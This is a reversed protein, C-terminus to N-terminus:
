RKMKFKKIKIKKKYFGKKPSSSQKWKIKSGKKTLSSKSSMASSIASSKSFKSGGFTSVKYKKKKGHKKKRFKGKGGSTKSGFGSAATSSQAGSISSIGSGAKSTSSFAGTTSSSIGSTSSSSTSSSSARSARSSSASSSSMGSASISSGRSVSSGASTASSSSLSSWLAGVGGRDGHRARLKRRSVYLLCLSGSLIVLVFNLSVIILWVTPTFLWTQSDTGSEPLDISEHQPSQPQSGPPYLTPYIAPSRAANCSFVDELSFKQYPYEIDYSKLVEADIAIVYQEDMAVLYLNKKATFGHDFERLMQSLQASTQCNDKPKRQHFFTEGTESECFIGRPMTRDNVLQQYIYVNDEGLNNILVLAYYQTEASISIIISYNLLVIHQTQAVDTSTAPPKKDWEVYLLYFYRSFGLYSFFGAGYLSNTVMAMTIRWSREDPVNKLIFNYRGYYDLNVQLMHKWEDMLEYRTGVDLFFRQQDDNYCADLDEFIIVSMDYQFQYLRNNVVAFTTTQSLVQQNASCYVRHVGTRNVTNTIPMINPMFSPDNKQAQIMMPNMMLILIVIIMMTATTTTPFM